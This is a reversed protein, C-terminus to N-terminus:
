RPRRRGRTGLPRVREVIPALRALAALATDATEGYFRNPAAEGWGEVGDDDILRVRISATSARAAARSSSRIRRTSSRSTTSLAEHEVFRQRPPRRCRAAFHPAADPSASRLFGILADALDYGRAYRGRPTKALCRM